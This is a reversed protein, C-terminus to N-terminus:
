NSPLSVTNYSHPFSPNYIQMFAYVYTNNSVDAFTDDEDNDSECLDFFDMDEDNM